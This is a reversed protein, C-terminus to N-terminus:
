MLWRALDKKSCGRTKVTRKQQVLHMALCVNQFQAAHFKQQVLHMALNVNQFLYFFCSGGGERVRARAATLQMYLRNACM